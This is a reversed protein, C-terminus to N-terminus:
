SGIVHNSEFSILGDDELEDMTEEIGCDLLAAKAAERALEETAYVNDNIGIDWECLITMVKM